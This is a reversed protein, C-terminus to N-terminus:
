NCLSVAFVIGGNDQYSVISPFIKHGSKDEMIVVKGNISAGVVSFTTGLDIGVAALLWDDHVLLM